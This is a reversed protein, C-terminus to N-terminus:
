LELLIFFRFKCLLIIVLVIYLNVFFNEFGGFFNEVFSCVEM